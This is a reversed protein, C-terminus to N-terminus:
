CGWFIDKEDCPARIRFSTLLHCAPTVPLNPGPTYFSAPCLNVTKGLSSVSWLLCERGFVCSIVEVCPCWLTTLESILSFISKTAVSPSTRYLCFFCSRSSVTAWLMLEKNCFEPKISSLLSVWPAERIAWYHLIQRGIYSICTWDRPQSSGRSYSIAVWGLIRAQFVGYVSSGPLYWDM